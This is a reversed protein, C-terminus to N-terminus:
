PVDFMSSLGSPAHRGLIISEFCGYGTITQGDPTTMRLTAFAQPHETRSGHSAGANSEIEDYGLAIPGKNLGHSWDPNMYGIGSLFFRAHPTVEIRYTGGAEDQATVLAKSPFRTGPVFEMDMRAGQLHEVVGGDRVSAVVTDLDLPWLSRLDIIEADIGTMQAASEAVWCMTGYALVTVAAGERRIAAKGLPVSHHGEPVEGLAICFHHGLIGVDVHHGSGTM